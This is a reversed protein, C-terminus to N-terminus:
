DLIDDLDEDDDIIEDDLDKKLDKEIKKVEKVEAEVIKEEEEVDIDDVDNFTEVDENIEENEQLLNSIFDKKEFKSLIELAKKRTLVESDYLDIIKEISLSLTIKKESM